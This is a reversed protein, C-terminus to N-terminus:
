VKKEFGSKVRELVFWVGTTAKICANLENALLDSYIGSLLTETRVLIKEISVASRKSTRYHPITTIHTYIVKPILTVFAFSPEVPYQNALSLILYFQVTMKTRVRCLRVRKPM